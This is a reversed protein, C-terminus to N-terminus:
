YKRVFWRMMLSKRANVQEKGDPILTCETLVDHVNLAAETQACAQEVRHQRKM